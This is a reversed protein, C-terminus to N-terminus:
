IIIHVIYIKVIFRTCHLIFQNNILFYYEDINIHSRTNSPCVLATHVRRNVVLIIYIYIYKIVIQSINVHLANHIGDRHIHGTYLM